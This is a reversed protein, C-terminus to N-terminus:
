FSVQILQSRQAGAEALKKILKQEHKEHVTYHQRYYKLASFTRGCNPYDCVVSRDLMPAPLQVELHGNPTIPSSSRILLSKSGRRQRVLAEKEGLSVTPSLQEPLGSTPRHKQQIISFLTSNKNVALRPSRIRNDLPVSSRQIKFPTHRAGTTEEHKEEIVSCDDDPYGSDDASEAKEPKTPECPNSPKKVARLDIKELFTVVASREDAGTACEENTSEDNSESDSHPKSPELTNPKSPEDSDDLAPLSSLLSQLSGNAFPLLLNHEQFLLQHVIEEYNKHTRVHRKLHYQRKFSWGCNPYRCKFPRYEQTPPPRSFFGNLLRTSLKLSSMDGVASKAGLKTSNLKGTLPKVMTTVTMKPVKPPTPDNALAKTAENIANLSVNSTSSLDVPDSDPLKSKMSQRGIQHAELKHRVLHYRKTFNKTCTGVDCYHKKTMGAYTASTIAAINSLKNVNDLRPLTSLKVVGFADALTPEDPGRSLKTTQQQSFMLRNNNNLDIPLSHGAICINDADDDEDDQIPRPDPMRLWDTGDDCTICLLPELVRHEFFLHDDLQEKLDYSIKCYELPCQFTRISMLSTSYQASCLQSPSNARLKSLLLQANVPLSTSSSSVIPNFSTVITASTSPSSLSTSSTPVPRVKGKRVETTSEISITSPSSPSALKPQVVVSQIHPVQLPHSQPGSSATTGDSGPLLRLKLSSTLSSLYAGFADKTLQKNSLLLKLNNSLQSSSGGFSLSNSGSSSNVNSIAGASGGCDDNAASAVATTATVTVAPSSICASVASNTSNTNITTRTITTGCNHKSLQNRDVNHTSKLHTHFQHEHAFKQGCSNVNCQYRRVNTTANSKSDPRGKNPSKVTSGNRDISNSSTEGGYLPSVSQTINITDLRRSESTTSKSTKSLSSSSSTPTDLLQNAYAAAIPSVTVSSTSNSPRPRTFKPFASAWGPHVRQQHRLVHNTRTFVWECGPFGCPYKRDNNTKKLMMKSKRNLTVGTSILVGSTNENNSTSRSPLVSGGSTITNAYSAAANTVAAIAAATAAAAAASSTSSPHYVISPSTSSSALAGTSNLGSVAVNLSKVAAMLASQSCFIPAVAISESGSTPSDAVYANPTTNESNRLPLMRLGNPPSAFTFGGSPSSAPFPPTGTLRHVAADFYYNSHAFRAGAIVIPRILLFRNENM